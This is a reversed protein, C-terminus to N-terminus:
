YYTTLPMGFLSNVAVFPFQAIEGAAYVPAGILVRPDNARPPVVAGVLRFPLSVITGATAVPATIIAAPGHFADPAAAVPEARKRVIIDNGDAAAPLSCTAALLAAGAAAYAFRSRQMGTLEMRTGIIPDRM